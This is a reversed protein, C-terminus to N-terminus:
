IHEPSVEPPHPALPCCRHCITNLDAVIKSWMKQLAIVPLSWLSENLCLYSTMDHNKWSHTLVAGKM